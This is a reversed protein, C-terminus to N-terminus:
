DFFSSLGELIVTNEKKTNPNVFTVKHSLKPMTEFFKEIEKFQMTNMQELFSIVEKKTVDSTSWVEEENYIKDICSAILEFSQDMDINGEFDFNTPTIGFNNKELWWSDSIDPNSQIKLKIEQEQTFLLTNAIFPLIVFLKSFKNIKIIKLKKLM